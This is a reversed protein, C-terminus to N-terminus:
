MKKKVKLLRRSRATANIESGDSSVLIPQRRRPKRESASGKFRGYVILHVRANEQM